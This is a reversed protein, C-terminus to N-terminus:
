CNVTSSPQNPGYRRFWAEAEPPSTDSRAEGGRLLERIMLPLEMRGHVRPSPLDAIGKAYEEEIVLSVLRQEPLEARVRDLVERGPATPSMLDIVLIMPELAGVVAVVSEPHAVLALTDFSPELQTRIRDFVLPHDSVVLVTPRSM